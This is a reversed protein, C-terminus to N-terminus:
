EEPGGLSRELLLLGEPLEEALRFGERRYFALARANESAVTLRLATRGLRRYHFVARALLQIGLGQGRREPKLYILSLWGWGQSAGRLTDLDVLGVPKDGDLLQLVAMPDAAQHERAARLYLDAFFGDLNGHAAMWADRYCDKYFRADRWLDLPEHGLDPTRAPILDSIHSYDNLELLRFRGDEWALTTVATNRMLPLREIDRIPLGCAKWLFCRISAGHSVVAVTQGEHRRAIREMARCMREGVQAFTEAGPLEFHEPDRLFANMREPDERRLDAYFRTEWPGINLERLEPDTHLPLGHPGAIAAATYRARYLDSAYVADVPLDRFREALAQVQRKGLETVGGDWFGQMMHCANGEAHTHRILYIKTM